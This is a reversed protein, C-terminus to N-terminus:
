ESFRTRGSIYAHDVLQEIEHMRKQYTNGRAYQIRCIKNEESNYSSLNSIVKGFLLPFESKEKTMELLNTTKAYDQIFTSVIVNGCVLYELIKHANTLQEPYKDVDYVLLLIDAKKLYNMLHQHEVVGLFFTNRKRPWNSGGSGLFIFDIETHGDILSYLLPKDIYSSDLHGAYMAKIANNGPLEVETEKFCDLAIGHPMLFSKRNSLLLRDVINQSVGFCIDASSALEHFQFDQSHDVIHAIKLVNRDLFGFDFFVSNDFSWICDFRTSALESIRNFKKRMFYRRLVKPLFRLGKLFPTYNLIWLNGYSLKTVSYYNSPPNLFFVRNKKSLEIAYHHKSVFLHDWGEPSIILINKGAFYEQRM